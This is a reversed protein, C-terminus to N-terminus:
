LNCPLSVTEELAHVRSLLKSNEENLREIEQLYVIQWKMRWSLGRVRQLLKEGGASNLPDLQRHKMMSGGTLSLEQQEFHAIKDLLERCVFVCVQYWNQGQVCIIPILSPLICILIHNNGLSKL